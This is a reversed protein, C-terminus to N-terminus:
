GAVAQLRRPGLADALLLPALREPTDPRSIHYGQVLHCGLQRMTTVTAADEVGEAVVRLGLTVGLDVISRLLVRSDHDGPVLASVFSRDIKLENVPLRQLYALSSYGTGFDDLSISVGIAAIRELIAVAAGPDSMVASETIELILRQAPVGAELLATCIRDPLEPDTVTRASLNVAVAVEIGAAQWSACQQLATALVVATLRGILGNNEALPIFADPSLLGLRPHQWRVLAELSTIRQLQLDLKPQFLVTLEDRDLALHLDALLALREARGRDMEVDYVAVGSRDGKAAYMATDAHQLLQAGTAGAALLAVGISAQPSLTAEGLEVPRALAASLARCLGTAQGAPSGSAAAPFPMLAAFEDGGLRAVTAQPPLQDRLRQAMVMLLADGTHHGLTDNVEKFRDLDLLLVFAPGGATLQREIADHLLGRNGLGTLSDHTADHQLRDRRRGSGVAVALHAALTQLLTLDERTFSGTDGLRDLVILSGLVEAASGPLPVLVADNVQHQRLFARAAPERTHRSMLAPSGKALMMDASLDNSRLRREVAHPRSHEDSRLHLAPRVDSLLLEASDARMLRRIQELMRGALEEVGSDGDDLSVFAHVHALAEHRRQLVQLSRHVLAAAVLSVGAVAYGVVGHVSLLLLGYAGVTALASVIAAPLHVEARQRGTLRGQHWGIVMVVLLSMLQDVLLLVLVCTVALRATLETSPQTLLSLLLADLAAEFAYAALNYGAKQWAARQLGFAVASGIVRLIVLEHSDCLLVGLALPVGALTVSYAERRVEVHLLCMDGITFLVLLLGALLAGSVPHATSLPPAAGALAALGVSTLALGVALAGTRASPNM